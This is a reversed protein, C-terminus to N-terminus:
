QNSDIINTYHNNRNQMFQQLEPRIHAFKIYQSILPACDPLKIKGRIEYASIQIHNNQKNYKIKANCPKFKGPKFEPNLYLNLKKYLNETIEFSNIQEWPIAKDFCPLILGEPKLTLLTSGISKYMKYCRFLCFASIMSLIIVSILWGTDYEEDTITNYAILTYTILIFLGALLSRLLLRTVGGLKLTITEQHDDIISKIYDLGSEATDQLDEQYYSQLTNLEKNFLDQLLTTPNINILLGSLRSVERYKIGSLRQALTPYRNYVSPSQKLLKTLSPTESQEVYQTIYDLPQYNIDKYDYYNFYNKLAQDIQAQLLYTKSLALAFHEKPIVQLADLDAMSETSLHWGCIARNFSYYFHKSLLYSPYFLHYNNFFDIIETLKDIQRNFSASANLHNRTIHSLERSIIGCLETLTLYNIYTSDLYLTNGNLETVTEGYYLCFTQNNIMFFGRGIGFIINDPMANLKLKQTIKRILRWLQPNTEPTIPVGYAGFKQTIDHKKSMHFYFFCLKAVATLPLILMWLRTGNTLIIYIFSFSLTLSIALILLIVQIIHSARFFNICLPKIDAKKNLRQILFLAIVGTVFCM